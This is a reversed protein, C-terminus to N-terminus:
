VGASVVVLPVRPTAAPEATALRGELRDRFKLHRRRTAEVLPRWVRSV